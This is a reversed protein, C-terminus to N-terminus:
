QRKLKHLSQILGIKSERRTFHSNHNGKIAHFCSHSDFYTINATTIISQCTVIAVYQFIITLIEHIVAHVLARAKDDYHEHSVLLPVDVFRVRPM